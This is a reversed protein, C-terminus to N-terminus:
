DWIFAFVLRAGLRRWPNVEPLGPSPTQGWQVCVQQTCHYPVRISPFQTPNHDPLHGIGYQNPSLVSLAIYLPVICIYGRIRDLLLYSWTVPCRAKGLRCARNRNSPGFGVHKPRSTAARSMLARPGAARPELGRPSDARSALTERVM